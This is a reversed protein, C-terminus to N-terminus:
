RERHKTTTTAQPAADAACRRLAPLTPRPRSPTARRARLTSTANRLVPDTSTAPRVRVAVATEVAAAALVVVV